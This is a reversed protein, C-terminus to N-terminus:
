SLAVEILAAATDIWGALQAGQKPTLKVLSVSIRKLGDSLAKVVGALDSATATSSLTDTAVLVADATEKFAKQIDAHAPASVQGALYLNQEGIQVQEVVLGVQKVVNLVKLVQQQHAAIPNTTPATKGACGTLPGVTLAFLLVLVSIHFRKM